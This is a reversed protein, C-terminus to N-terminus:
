HIIITLLLRVLWLMWVLKCIVLNEFLEAYLFANSINDHDNQIQGIKQTDKHYKKIAGGNVYCGRGSPSGQRHSSLQLCSMCCSNSKGSNAVRQTLECAVM